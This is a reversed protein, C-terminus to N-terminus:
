KRGGVLEAWRNHVDVAVEYFDTDFGGEDEDWEIERIGHGRARRKLFGSALKM